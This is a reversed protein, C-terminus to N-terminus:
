VLLPALGDLYARASRGEIDKRPNGCCLSVATVRGSAALLAIENRLREVDWGDPAPVDVGPAVGPDLIDGDLHVILPVDAPLSALADAVGDCSVIQSGALMSAEGPDLDRAGVLACRQEELGAFGCAARQEDGWWGVIVAFPMGGIFGTQSSGPTNLDGHADIWVLCADAHRRVAGAAFGPVLSCEGLLALPLGEARAVAEATGALAGELDPVAVRVAASAGLEALVADPGEQMGSAYYQSAWPVVIPSVTSM